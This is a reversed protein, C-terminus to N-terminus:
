ITPFLQLRLPYASVSFKAYVKQKLKLQISNMDGGYQIKENNNIRKTRNKTM